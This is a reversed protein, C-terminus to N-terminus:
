VWEQDLEKEKEMPDWNEFKKPNTIIYLLWFFIAIHTIM